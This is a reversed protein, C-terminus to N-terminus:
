LVNTMRIDDISWKSKGRGGLRMLNYGGDLELAGMDIEVWDGKRSANACTLRGWTKRQRGGSTPLWLEVEVWQGDPVKGLSAWRGTGEIRIKFADNVTIWHSMWWRPKEGPRLHYVSHIEGNLTGSGRRLALRYVVWGNTKTNDLHWGLWGHFKAQNGRSSAELQSFDCMLSREGRFATANSVWRCLENTSVANKEYYLKKPFFGCPTTEFDEAFYTREEACSVGPPCDATAACAVRCVAFLTILLARM